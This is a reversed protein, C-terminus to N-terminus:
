GTVYNNLLWLWVGLVGPELAGPYIGCTRTSMMAEASRPAPAAKNVTSAIIRPYWTYLSTHLAAVSKVEENASAIAISPVKKSLPGRPDPLISDASHVKFYRYLAM